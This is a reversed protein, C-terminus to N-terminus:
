VLLIFHSASITCTISKLTIFMVETVLSVNKPINVSTQFSQNVTYECLSKYLMTKFTNSFLFTFIQELILQVLEVSYQLGIRVKILQLYIKVVEKFNHFTIIKSLVRNSGLRSQIICFQSVPSKYRESICKLIPMEDRQNELCGM